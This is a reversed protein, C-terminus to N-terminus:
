ECRRGKLNYVVYYALLAPWNMFVCLVVWIAKENGSTIKSHFVIIAPLFIVFLIIFVDSSM